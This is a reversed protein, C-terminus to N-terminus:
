AIIDLRSTIGATISRDQLNHALSIEEKNDEQGIKGLMRLRELDRVREFQEQSSNHQDMSQWSMGQEDKLQTQVEVKAVKLGQQELEARLSDMQQILAATTEAREPRLLASVEGNKTTLLVNVTGLDLPNLTLELRNTGNRLASFAGQEVQSFMRSALRDMAALQVNQPQLPQQLPLVTGISQSLGLRQTLAEWPSSSSTNVGKTQIDALLGKSNQGKHKEFLGDGDKGQSSGEKDNSQTQSQGTFKAADLNQELSQPKNPLESTVDKQQIKGMGNKTVTDQILIESQQTRKSELNGAVAEEDMRKRAEKIVPMLAGELQSALKNQVDIKNTMQQQLPVLLNRLGDSNLSLEKNVKFSKSLADLTAANAGLAKGLSVIEAHSISLKINPDHNSLANSLREWAQISRGQRLDDLIDSELQGSKDIENALDRINMMDSESLRVPEEYAVTQIVEGIAVGSPSGLLSQLPETSVGQTGLSDIIKQLENDTFRIEDISSSPRLTSVDIRLDEMNDYPAETSFFLASNDLSDNLLNPTIEAPANRFHKAFLQNFGFSDRGNDRSLSPTEKHLANSSIPFIQM